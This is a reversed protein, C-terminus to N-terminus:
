RRRRRLQFIFLAFVLILGKIIYQYYAFINLMNLINNIISILFSGALTGLVGGIGGMLSTGGVVSAAVSDMSYTDGVVPDGSAMKAALIVGALAAFIGALIYGSIKVKAGPLGAKDAAIEDAGTAYIYRGFKTGGLLFFSVAYFVIILIGSLSVIGWNNGMAMVFNDSVMGGPSPMIYLSLGKVFAMTSLTMILPPINLKAIGFGNVAGVAAGAAVSLLIGEPLGMGSSASVSAVIITSLSIVSGISLDIGGLLLVVTQGISALALPAVQAIINVFNDTSRFTPSFVSTVALLIILIFYVPVSLKANKLLSGRFM